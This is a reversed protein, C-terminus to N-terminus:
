KGEEGSKSMFGARVASIVLLFPWLFFCVRAWMYSNNSLAIINVFCIVSVAWAVAAYIDWRSLFITILLCYLAHASAREILWESTHMSTFTREM